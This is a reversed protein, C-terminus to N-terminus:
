DGIHLNYIGSKETPFLSVGNVCGVAYITGKSGHIRGVFPPADFPMSQAGGYPIACYAVDTGNVVGIVLELDHARGGWEPNGVSPDSDRMYTPLGEPYYSTLPLVVAEPTLLTYPIETPESTPELTPTPPATETVPPIEEAPTGPDNGFTIDCASMSAALPLALLLPIYKKVM